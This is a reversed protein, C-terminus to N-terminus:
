FVSPEFSAPRLMHQQCWALWMLVTAVINSMHYHPLCVSLDKTGTSHQQQMLVHFGQRVRFFVLTWIQWVANNCCLYHSSSKWDSRGALICRQQQPQWGGPQEGCPRGRQQTDPATCGLPRQVAAVAALQEDAAGAAPDARLSMCCLVFCCFFWPTTCAAVRLVALSLLVVM